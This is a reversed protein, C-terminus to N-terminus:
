GGNGARWGRARGVGRPDSTASCRTTGRCSGRASTYLDRATPRGFACGASDRRGCERVGAVIAGLVATAVGRRRWEPATYIGVIYGEAGTPNRLSPPRHFLVVARTGIAVGDVEALWARYTEAPLHTRIYEESLDALTRQGDPHLHPGDLEARMAMRLRVLTQADQLTARRVTFAM